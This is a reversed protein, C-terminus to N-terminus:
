IYFSNLKGEREYEVLQNIKHTLSFCVIFTIVFLVDKAENVEFM